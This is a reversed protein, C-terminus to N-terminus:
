ERIWFERYVAPVDRNLVFTRPGERVLTLSDEFAEHTQRRGNGLNHFSARKTERDDPTM